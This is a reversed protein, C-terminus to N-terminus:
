QSLKRLAEIIRSPELRLTHNIEVFDLIIISNQDIVYTAPVPLEFSDNGNAGPIDIGFKAYVPRLAEPLTYVLGFDRAVSNGVDSLVHFELNEKEQLTLSQDPLQPSIAILEAGMSKITALELQM